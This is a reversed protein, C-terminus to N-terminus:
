RSGAMVNLDSGSYDARARGEVFEKTKAGYTPGQDPKMTSSGVSRRKSAQDSDEGWPM